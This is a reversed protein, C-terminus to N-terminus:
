RMMARRGAALALLRAVGAVVLGVVLAVGAATLRVERVIASYPKISGPCLSLIGAARERGVVGLRLSAPWHVACQHRCMGQVTCCSPSQQRCWVGGSDGDGSFGAGSCGGVVM